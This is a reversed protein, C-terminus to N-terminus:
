RRRKRRQDAVWRALPDLNGYLYLIGVIVVAVAGWLMGEEANSGATVFALVLCGSGSTLGVLTVLPGYDVEEAELDEAHDEATVITDATVITLTAPPEDAVAPVTVSLGGQLAVARAGGVAAVVPPATIATRPETYYNLATEWLAAANRQTGVGIHGLAPGWPGWPPGPVNPM